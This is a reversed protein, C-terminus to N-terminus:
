EARRNVSSRWVLVGAAVCAVVFLLSSASHLQGFRATDGAARATAMMPRLAVFFFLPMAIALLAAIVSTRNLSRHGVALYIVGLALGLFTEAYFFQAAINGALKHDNPLLWFLGPVVVGCITWLSGAWLTLVLQNLRPM